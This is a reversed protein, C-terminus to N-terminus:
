SKKGKKELKAKLLDGLTGMGKPAEETQRRFTELTQAEEEAARSVEALSLSIRRAERDVQEIKVELVEGEKVAERPHSLRRGAGLRSIHLLGDVGEELTVFAGFPALRSVVGRHCSGEPYNRAAEQWPDALTERLSFTFREREWDIAKLVVEVEQGERLRDRIDEVRGWGVESIPLLGEVGGIDIFAGFDQIRTVTGHVTMGERLTAKLAEKQRAREEELLARRSLVINRGSEGYQAIRFSLHKGLYEEPSGGRLAIQSYPCFARRGAVKVEYGGKVEKEVLGDVPIGGRWAEELQGLGADGGVRATFRMEGGRSSLFYVPIRDGEAVKLQGDADLLEKKDVVGEGKQGIDVFVWDGTIKLVTAEVKQGPELRGAEVLSKALLDAFSEEGATDNDEMDDKNM